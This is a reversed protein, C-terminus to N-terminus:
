GPVEDGEHSLVLQWSNSLAVGLLLLVGLSITLEGYQHIGAISRIAGAVAVIILGSHYVFARRYNLTRARWARISFPISLALVSAAVGLQGLGVLRSGTGTLALLAVFLVTAFAYFASRARGVMLHSSRIERPRLSVAVFLLGTLTAAAGGMTIFFDTWRADMSGLGLANVGRDDSKRDELGRTM